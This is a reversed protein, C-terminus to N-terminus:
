HVSNRRKENSISLQKMESLDTLIAGFRKKVNKYNRRRTSLNIRHLDITIDAVFKHMLWCSGVFFSQIPVAISGVSYFSMAEIMLAIHYGLPTKWSFPLRQFLWLLKTFLKSYKNM